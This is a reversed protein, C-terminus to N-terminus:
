SYLMYIIQITLAICPTFVDYLTFKHMQKLEELSRESQLEDITRQPRPEQGAGYGSHYPVPEEHGAPLIRLDYDQGKVGPGLPLCVCGTL